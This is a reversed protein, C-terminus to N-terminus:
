AGGWEDGSTPFGLLEEDLRAEAEEASCMKDYREIIKRLKAIEDESLPPTTM